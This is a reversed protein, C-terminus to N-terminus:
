PLSAAVPPYVRDYAEAHVIHKHGSNRVAQVGRRYALESYYEWLHEQAAMCETTKRKRDFVSTIDLLVEPHFGCMEPQHPEFIYVPPAGLVTGQAPYGAAQALVRAQLALRHATPHDMNYPDRDGHTLVVDPQVERYERVLLDLLDPTEALPYDGQDLFRVEAGLAEAASEAEARRVAKVKDISMDPERWLSASEGREGFSLCVVRVRSGNASELAIAGGARWVFDAAHASIVLVSRTM